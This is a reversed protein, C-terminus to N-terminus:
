RVRQVWADAMAIRQAGSPHNEFIAQYWGPPDPDALARATFRRFLARMAVPDHTTQLARWDAEAEYRRSVANTFPTVALNVLAIVLLAFPVVEPREMGGRRRTLVELVFFLPITLLASWALGKWIHRRAVHGFEHAAVVKIEGASYRGSLLTDWLVVRASPGPLM